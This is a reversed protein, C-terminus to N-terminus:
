GSFRIFLRGLVHYAAHIIYYCEIEWSLSWFLLDLVYLQDEIEELYLVFHFSIALMCTVSSLERIECVCSQTERKGDLVESDSCMCESRLVCCRSMM